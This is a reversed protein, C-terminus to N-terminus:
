PRLRGSGSELFTTAFMDLMLSARPSTGPFSDLLAQTSSYSIANEKVTLEYALSQMKKATNWCSSYYWYECVCRSSARLILCVDEKAGRTACVVGVEAKLLLRLTTRAWQM